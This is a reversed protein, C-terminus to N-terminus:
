DFEKQITEWLSFNPDRCCVNENPCFLTTAVEDKICSSRCQYGPISLQMRGVRCSSVVILM